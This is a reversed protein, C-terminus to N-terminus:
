LRWLLTPLKMMGNGLQGSGLNDKMTPCSTLMQEHYPENTVKMSIPVFLTM